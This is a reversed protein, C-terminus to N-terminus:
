HVESALLRGLLALEIWLRMSKKLLGSFLLSAEPTSKDSARDLKLSASARQVEAWSAYVLPLRSCATVVALATWPFSAASAADM